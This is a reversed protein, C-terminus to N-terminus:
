AEISPTLAVLALIIGVTVRNNAGFIRPLEAGEDVTKSIPDTRGERRFVSTTLAYDVLRLAIFNLMITAIVEHAGRTAKLIGPISGWLMGGLFGAAVALPAHIIAPLGTFTFSVYIAFLSGILIQGEGGINFLGARFALAVSLGTFILPTAAVLTESVASRGGLSSKLLGRYAEFVLDWSDRLTQGPHSFFEGWSGLTDPDTFVIVLAGIVLATLIALGAVALNMLFPRSSEFMEHLAPMGRRESSEASAGDEEDEDPASPPQLDVSDNV